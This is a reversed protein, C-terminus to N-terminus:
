KCIELIIDNKNVLSEDEVWTGCYERFAWSTNNDNDDKNAILKDSTENIEKM